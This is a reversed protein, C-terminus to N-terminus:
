QLEENAERGESIEEPFEEDVPNALEMIEGKEVIEEEEEKETEIIQTDNKKEIAKKIKIARKEPMPQNVRIPLIDAELEEQAIKMPDYNIQELEKKSIDKLLPANMSIQLARAGLVRTKEYKSFKEEKM